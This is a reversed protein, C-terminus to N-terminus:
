KGGGDREAIRSALYADIESELYAIRGASVQIPQPFKGYKRLRWIQCQSLPIGKSRLDAPLILRPQAPPPSIESLSM